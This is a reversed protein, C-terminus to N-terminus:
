WTSLQFVSLLESNRPQCLDHRDFRFIDFRYEGCLEVIVSLAEFEVKPPVQHFESQGTNVLGLEEPISDEIDIAVFPRFSTSQQTRLEMLLPDRIEIDEFFM